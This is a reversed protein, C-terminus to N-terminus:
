FTFNLLGKAKVQDRPILRVISQKFFYGISEYIAPEVHYAALILLTGMITLPNQSSLRRRHIREVDYKIINQWACIM